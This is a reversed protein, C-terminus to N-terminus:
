ADGECQLEYACGRELEILTKLDYPKGRFMLRDAVSLGALFRIRLTVAVRGRSGAPATALDLAEEKVLEARVTAVGAWTEVEAGYADPVSARREVTVVHRMRGARIM